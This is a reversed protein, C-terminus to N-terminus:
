VGSTGRELPQRDRTERSRLLVGDLLLTRCEQLRTQLPEARAAVPPCSEHCSTARPAPQDERDGDPHDEAGQEGPRLSRGTRLGAFEKRLTEMAGDMRRTLDQKLAKFDAAM